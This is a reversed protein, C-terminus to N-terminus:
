RVLITVADMGHNGSSDLAEVTIEHLGPGLHVRVTTGDVADCGGLGPVHWRVQKL